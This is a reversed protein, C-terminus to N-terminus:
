IERAAYIGPVNRLLGKYDMGAGFVYRDDVRLGVYDAQLNNFRRDHQKDVLVATRVEQAGEDRCQQIIGALTHGEDLIDDVILVVRDRLSARPKALWSLEGGQTAGRYRTAHLYDLEVPFMLRPLLKGSLVLGGTMVCLFLPLSGNLEDTIQTAMREIARDVNAEDYLLEAEALVRSAEEASITM